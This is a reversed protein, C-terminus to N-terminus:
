FYASNALLYTGTSLAFFIYMNFYSAMNCQNIYICFKVNSKQSKYSNYPLDFSNDNVNKCQQIPKEEIFSVKKECFSKNFLHYHISLPSM